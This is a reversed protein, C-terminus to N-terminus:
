CIHALPSICSPDINLNPSLLCQAFWDFNRALLFGGFVMQVYARLKCHVQFIDFDLMVPKSIMRDQNGPEMWQSVWRQQRQPFVRSCNIPGHQGLSFDCRLKFDRCWICVRGVLIGIEHSLSFLSNIFGQTDFPLPWQRVVHSSTALLKFHDPHLCMRSRDLFRAFPLKLWTKMAEVLLMASPHTMVSSKDVIGSKDLSAFISECGMVVFGLQPLANHCGRTKCWTERLPNTLLCSDDQSM